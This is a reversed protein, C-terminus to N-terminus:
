CYQKLVCCRTINSCTTVQSNVLLFKGECPFCCCLLQKRPSFKRQMFAAISVNWWYLVLHTSFIISTTLAHYLLSLYSPSPVCYFPPLLIIFTFSCLLSALCFSLTNVYVHIASFSSLAAILIYSLSKLPRRKSLAECLASTPTYIYLILSMHNRFVLVSSLIIIGSQECTSGLLLPDCFM